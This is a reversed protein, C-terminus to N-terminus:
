CGHSFLGRLVSLLEPVQPSTREPQHCAAPNRPFRAVAQGTSSFCPGCSEAMLSISLGAGPRGRGRPDGNEEHTPRQRSREREM